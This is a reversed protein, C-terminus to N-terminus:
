SIARRRVAVRLGGGEVVMVRRERGLEVVGDALEFDV